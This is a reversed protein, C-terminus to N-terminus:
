LDFGKKGAAAKAKGGAAPADPNRYSRFKVNAYVMPNGDEDKKGTTSENHEITIYFEKGLFEDVEPISPDEVTPKPTLGAAGVLKAVNGITKQTIFVDDFVKGKFAGDVSEYKLAYTLKDNKTKEEAEVVTVLHEGEPTLPFKGSLTDADITFSLRKAM